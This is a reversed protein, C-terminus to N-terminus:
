ILMADKKYDLIPMGVTYSDVMECIKDTIMIQAINVLHRSWKISM